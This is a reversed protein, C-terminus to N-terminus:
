LKLVEKMKAEDYGIVCQSNDIVLTPFSGQPNWGEVISLISSRDEGQLLDVDIYEYEIGKENLFQKMKRCWPCTSLAYVMIKGKNKGPVHTTQM